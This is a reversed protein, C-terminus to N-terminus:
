LYINIYIYIYIYICMYVYVCICFEFDLFETNELDNRCEYVCGCDREASAAVLCQCFASQICVTGQTTKVPAGLDAAPLRGDPTVDSADIADV